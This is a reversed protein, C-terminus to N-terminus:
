KITLEGTKSLRAVYNKEKTIGCGTLSIKVKYKGPEPFIDKQGAHVVIQRSQGPYVPRGELVELVTEKKKPSIVKFYGTPRVHVNGNDRVITSFQTSGQYNSVQLGSFDWSIKETGRVTVFISVSVVLTVGQSEGTPVFTIMAARMGTQATSLKVKYKVDVTEDPKFTFSSPTVQLWDTVPINKEEEKTAYWYRTEVALSYNRGFGNTVKYTGEFTGGPPLTVEQRTPSVILGANSAVGAAVLLVSVLFIRRLMTLEGIEKTGRSLPRVLVATGRITIVAYFVAKLGFRLRSSVVASFCRM